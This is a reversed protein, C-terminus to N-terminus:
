NTFLFSLDQLKRRYGKVNSSIRAPVAESLRRQDLKSMSFAFKELRNIVIKQVTVPCFDCVLLTTYICELNNNQHSFIKQFSWEYYQLIITFYATAPESPLCKPVIGIDGFFDTKFIKMKSNRCAKTDLKSFMKIIFILNANKL